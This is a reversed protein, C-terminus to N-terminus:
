RTRVQWSQAPVDTPNIQGETHMGDCAFPSETDSTLWTSLTAIATRRNSAVDAVARGKRTTVFDLADHAGAANDDRDNGGTAAV